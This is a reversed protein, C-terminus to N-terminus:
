LRWHDALTLAGSIWDCLLWGWTNPERGGQLNCRALPQILLWDQQTAIINTCYSIYLAEISSAGNMRSVLFAYNLPFQLAYHSFCSPFALLLIRRFRHHNRCCLLYSLVLLCYLILHLMCVTCCWECSRGALLPTWHAWTCSHVGRTDLFVSLFCTVFLHIIGHNKQRIIYKSQDSWSSCSCLHNYWM